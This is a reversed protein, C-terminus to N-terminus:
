LNVVESKVTRSREPTKKVTGQRKNQIDSDKVVALCGCYFVGVGLTESSHKM